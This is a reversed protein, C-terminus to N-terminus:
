VEEEEEAEEVQEEAFHWIKKNKPGFVFISLM